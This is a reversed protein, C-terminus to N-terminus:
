LKKINVQERNATPPVTPDNLFRLHAADASEARIIRTARPRMPERLAFTVRYHNLM